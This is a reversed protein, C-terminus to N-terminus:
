LFWLDHGTQIPNVILALILASIYVSEKNAPVRFTWAFVKNTIWCVVLLLSITFLLALRDYCVIGAWGFIVATGLLGALYYLTLRYMTIKDLARDIVRLM